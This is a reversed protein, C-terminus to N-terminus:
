PLQRYVIRYNCWFGRGLKVPTTLKFTEVLVSNFVRGHNDTLTHTQGDIQTEIQSILASVAASSGGQLRGTQVILRSRLGMDVMLEGDLGPFGRHLVSRQWSEPRVSDPGSSFLDNGDLLSM